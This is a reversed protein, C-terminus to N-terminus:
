VPGPRLADSWGEADVVRILGEQVVSCVLQGDRTYVLGRALGRAGQASPTEQAYLLWEDARFPRHFWMAHDLSAMSIGAFSRGHRLLVTDLLTLDSAYTMLCVQTLRDDPLKGDVKLWVPNVATRLRPDREAEYSLPGVPRLEIPHWRVFGPVRGFEARLRERTSPLEEPPPVDPMPIQHDLGPEEKHFSASLTFIPKGHQVAVVRRTTFSRGDRVRDVEYVIPVAPDGPRIFYAHLSHVYRDEPATRGAAVLAQGAVLGGFVRQPGEQPSSGRFINVEIRELDLVALLDALSQDRRTEDARDSM